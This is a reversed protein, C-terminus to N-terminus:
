LASATSSDYFCLIYTILTYLPAMSMPIKLPRNHAAKIKQRVQKEYLIKNIM